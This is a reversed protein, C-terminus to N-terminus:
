HNLKKLLTNAQSIIQNLYDIAEEREKPEEIRHLHKEQKNLNKLTRIFFPRYAPEKVAQQASEAQKPGALQQKRWEILGARDIQGALVKALMKQRTETDEIKALEEATRVPINATRVAEEVDEYRLISLLCSVYGISKGIKKGIDRISYGLEKQMKRYAHAEEVPQLDDRQVNETLAIEMMQQDTLDQIVVPVKDLKALKAARLRREGYVLENVRSKQRVLLHGFFGHQKISEALEKLKQEDFTQRPQFPNAEISDISLEQLELESNNQSEGALKELIGGSILTSKAKELAQANKSPIQKKKKKPTPKKKVM